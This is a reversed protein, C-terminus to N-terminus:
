YSIKYVVWWHSDKDKMFDLVKEFLEKTYKLANYQGYGINKVNDLEGKAQEVIKAMADRDLMLENSDNKGENAIVDIMNHIHWEKCWYGIQFSTEKSLFNRELQKDAFGELEKPYFGKMESMTARFPSMSEYKKLYLYMDLGM